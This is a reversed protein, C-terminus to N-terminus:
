YFGSKAQNLKGVESKKGMAESKNLYYVIDLRLTIEAGGMYCIFFPKVQLFRASPVRKLQEEEDEEEQIQVEAESVIEM